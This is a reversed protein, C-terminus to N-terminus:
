PEYFKQCGTFDNGDWALTADDVKLALHKVGDGHKYVHDAIDNSPRLSTTLVFCLKNQSIVYSVKDKVGTETRCLSLISFWFATKYFHAAQRANGVYLEV